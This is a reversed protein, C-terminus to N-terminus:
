TVARNLLALLDISRDNERVRVRVSQLNPFGSRNFGLIQDSFHLYEYRNQSEIEGEVILYVTNLEFELILGTGSAFARVSAVKILSHLSILETQAKPRAISELTASGILGLVGMMITIVVLLEILTVGRMRLGNVM